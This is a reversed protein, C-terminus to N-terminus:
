ASDLRADIPYVSSYWRNVRHDKDFVLDIRGLRIGAFGVQNVITVRGTSHRIVEPEDLFTHSHGGLVIDVEPVENAVATDSPRDGSTRHGLHSLCVVLDCRKDRLTAATRRAADIPDQYTVGEHLSSLVLRDFDIGLGFIGVRIGDVERITYPQVFSHMASKSVDYNASVWEFDAYEQVDVWGDVGIDFDHNGLTAVDYRMASMTKFEVEGRFFNFYPTGQFIDGSDLLLVNPQHDRVQRVLAARRAVGGLGQNRGGDM